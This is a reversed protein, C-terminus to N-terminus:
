FFCEPVTFLGLATFVIGFCHESVLFLRFTTFILGFFPEPILSLRFASFVSGFFCQHEIVFGLVFPRRYFFPYQIKEPPVAITVSDLRKTFLALFILEAKSSRM